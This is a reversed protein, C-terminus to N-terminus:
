HIQTLSKFACKRTLIQSGTKTVLIDDEIRIGLKRPIYIGPEITIINGQQLKDKSKENLFPDEHIEIGLGHGTGHGYVPLNHDAIVKRAAADLDKIKVGPKVMKIAATQAKLVADYAKKYLPTPKGLTFCRTIDCCYGNYRVGFDILVPDKRKLKRKSPQHHPKSANPGFAVITEFSNAANAKRIQFDLRGALESETIGPKIFKITQKLAAAAIDAAKKVSTIESTDKSSRIQEIINPAPKIKRKLHKKLAKFDSISTSTEVALKQDSKLKKLLKNITQPMPDTRQIIKCLRCQNKAQETYRSDTLLYVNRPTIIAWSDDGLFGTIHTVNPPKTVILSSLNKKKLLLRIKSIRKKITENKM